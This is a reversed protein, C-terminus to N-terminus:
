PSSRGANACAVAQSHRSNHRTPPAWLADIVPTPQSAVAKIQDRDALARGAHSSRAAVAPSRHWAM